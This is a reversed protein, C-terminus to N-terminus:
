GNKYPWNKTQRATEREFGWSKQDLLSLTSWLSGWVPGLSSGKGFYFFEM